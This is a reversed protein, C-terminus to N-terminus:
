IGYELSRRRIADQRAADSNLQVQRLFNQLDTDSTQTQQNKGSVLNGMQNQFNTNYDGLSKAYVGSNLVGRGAFDYQQNQRDVDAQRNMSRSTNDFNQNIQNLQNSHVTNQASKSANFQAMQQNYTDDGALWDAISKQPAQQVAPAQPPSYGNPTGGGGGGGPNGNYGGNSNGGGSSGQMPPNFKRPPSYAIPPPRPPNYQPPQYVQGGGLQEGSRETNRGM